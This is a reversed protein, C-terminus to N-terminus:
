GVVHRSTVTLVIAVLLRNQTAICDLATDDLMDDWHNDDELLGLALCADKYTPYQQGNVKRIDQFSLPGTVNVLLLRLYFCEIQRPNVTYVRGLTNSKFLGPCADTPTGQKSPMWKKQGHSITHYKPISYHEYLPVSSASTAGDTM